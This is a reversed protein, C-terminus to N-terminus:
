LNLSILSGWKKSELKKKGPNILANMLDEKNEKLMERITTSSLHESIEKRICAVQNHIPCPNISDCPVFHLACNELDSVGGKTTRLLDMLSKSGTIENVSFGGAPGKNSSLIGEKALLKLVKGMFHRPVNLATAIEEAQIYKKEQHQLSLYLIGKLAYGFSKSFM